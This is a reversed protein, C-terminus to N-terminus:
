GDVRETLYKVDGAVNEKFHKLETKLLSIEDSMESIRKLVFRVSQQHSAVTKKLATTQKSEAMNKEQKKFFLKQFSEKLSEFM